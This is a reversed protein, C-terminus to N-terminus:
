IQTVRALNTCAWVCPSRLRPSWVFRQDERLGVLAVRTANPAPGHWGLTLLMSRSTDFGIDIVHVPCHMHLMTQLRLVHLIRNAPVNLHRCPPGPERVADLRIGTALPIM